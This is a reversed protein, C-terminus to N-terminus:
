ISHYVKPYIDLFMQFIYSDFDLVFTLRWKLFCHCSYKTYYNRANLLVNGLKKPLFLIETKTKCAVNLQLSSELRYVAPFLAAALKHKPFFNILVRTANCCFAPLDYVERSYQKEHSTISQSQQFFHFRWKLYMDRYSLDM